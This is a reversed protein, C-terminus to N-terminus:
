IGFGFGIRIIPNQYPSNRNENLNYLLLINISSRDGLAQRYGGGVYFGFVNDRVFEYNNFLYKPVELNLVEAEVHAFINELIFYRTFISGGYIDSSYNFNSFPDKFHYYIYTVTFGVSLRETLRYGVLPNVDVITQDGFQLGLNGGFYVKNWFTEGTEPPQAFSESFVSVSILIIFVAKYFQKM